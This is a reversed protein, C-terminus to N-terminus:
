FNSTTNVESIILQEIFPIIKNKHIFIKALSETLITIDRGSGPIADKLATILRQDPNFVLELFEDM